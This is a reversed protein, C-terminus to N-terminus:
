ARQHHSRQRLGAPGGRDSEAPGPPDFPCCDGERSSGTSPRSIWTCVLPSACAASAAGVAWQMTFEYRRTSPRLRDAVDTVVAPAGKRPRILTMSPM